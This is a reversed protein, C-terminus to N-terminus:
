CDLYKVWKRQPIPLTADLAALATELDRSYAQAEKTERATAAPTAPSEFLNFQNSLSFKETLTM